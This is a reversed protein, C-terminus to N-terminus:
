ITQRTNMRTKIKLSDLYKLSVLRSSSIPASIFLCVFLGRLLPGLNARPQKVALQMLLFIVGPRTYQILNKQKCIKVYPNLLAGCKFTFLFINIHYFRVFGLYICGNLYGFSVFDIMDMLLLAFIVKSFFLQISYCCSIAHVTCKHPALDYPSVSQSKYSFILEYFQCIAKLLYM